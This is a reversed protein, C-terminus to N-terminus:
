RPRHYGASKEWVRFRYEIFGRKLCKRLANGGVLSRMRPGEAFPRIFPLVWALARDRPRDLALCATLDRDSVLSLGFGTAMADVDRVPLLSEAHWGWVFDRLPGAEKAGKALFDDVVVLRGGPRLSESVKEFFARADSAHVFSEIAYALDISPPLLDRCFDGRLWEAEGRSRALEYGERSVTIGFGEARRRGLLYLLSAGVGCGLDLIRLSGGGLADTERLILEHVYQMAGSLDSVGEGWVARHLVGESGGEGRALFSATNVDYYRAVGEGEARVPTTYWPKRRACPMPGFDYAPLAGAPM